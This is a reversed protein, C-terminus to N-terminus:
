KKKDKDFIQQLTKAKDMVTQGQRPECLIFIIYARKGIVVRPPVDEVQVLGDYKIMIKMHPWHADFLMQRSPHPIGPPLPKMAFRFERLFYHRGTGSDVMPVGESELTTGYWEKNDTSNKNM